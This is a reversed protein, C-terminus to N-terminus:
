AQKNKRRRVSLGLGMLGIGMLALSAPEPVTNGFVVDLSGNTRQAATSTPDLVNFQGSQFSLDYFPNPSTFYNKGLATLFFSTTTGFSGCNIGTGGGSGCTPLSTDLTGTGSIMNGFAIQYDEGSGGTVSTGGSFTTDSNPDIWASLAGGPLFTFVTTSGAGPAYTGTGSLLAYLGYQNTTVSGLQNGVPTAGDTATYQGANWRISTSFTGSSGGSFTVDEVYNGTIKGATFVLPVTGPVSTETVQFPNFAAMASASAMGLAATMAAALLTKNMVKKM